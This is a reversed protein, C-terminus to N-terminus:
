IVKNWALMPLFRKYLVKNTYKCAIGIMIFNQLKGYLRFSICPDLASHSSSQSEAEISNMLFRRGDGIAIAFSGSRDLALIADNPSTMLCRFPLFRNYEPFWEARFDKEQRHKCLMCPDKIRSISRIYLRDLLCQSNQIRRRSLKLKQPSKLREPDTNKIGVNISSPSSCLSAEFDFEDSEIKRRPTHNLNTVNGDDNSQISTNRSALRRRKRRFAFPAVKNKQSDNNM